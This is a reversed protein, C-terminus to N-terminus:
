TKRWGPTGPETNRRVTILMAGYALCILLVMVAPGVVPTFTILKFLMFIGFATLILHTTNWSTNYFVRNIWHATMLATLATGALLLAITVFLLILAIPIGIITILLLVTVIPLGLCLLIGLGLSALSKNLVNGAARQVTSGITTEFVYIMLLATIFYGVLLLGISFDTFVWRPSETSLSNDFVAPTEAARNPIDLKGEPNWFRIGKELAAEPGFSIHQAALTAEAAVRGNFEIEDARLDLAQLAVGTFTIEEAWSNVIGHVQGDISTEGGLSILNGRINAAKAVTIKGGMVMADDATTHLLHINGGVCRLDDGVHGNIVVNGGAILLDHQVSDNITVDGGAIILDGRIPANVIVTGGAIYVDDPQPTDIVINDGSRTSIGLPTLLILLFALVLKM